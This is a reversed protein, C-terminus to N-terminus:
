SKHSSIPFRVSILRRAVLDRVEETTLGHKKAFYRIEFDEPSSVRGCAPERANDKNGGMPQERLPGESSSHSDTQPTGRSGASEWAKRQEDKRSPRDPSRGLFRAFAAVERVYDHETKEGFQRLRMDDIMRQRLPSVPASTM